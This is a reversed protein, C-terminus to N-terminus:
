NIPVILRCLCVDCKLGTEVCDEGEETFGLLCSCNFGGKTNHCYKNSALPCPNTEMACEDIDVECRSGNWFENCECIGTVRNCSQSTVNTNEHVCSCSSTCNDGFTNGTCASEFRILKSSILLSDYVTM